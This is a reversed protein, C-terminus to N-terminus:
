YRSCSSAYKSLREGLGESATKLDAGKLAATQDETLVCGTEAAAKAPDAALHTRFESDLMARGILEHLEKATAM